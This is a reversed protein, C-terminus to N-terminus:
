GQINPPILPQHIFYFTQQPTNNSYYYRLPRKRNRPIRVACCPLDPGEILDMAKGMEGWKVHYESGEPDRHEAASCTDNSIPSARMEVQILRDDNYIVKIQVQEQLKVISRNQLDLFLKSLTNIKSSHYFLIKRFTNIM